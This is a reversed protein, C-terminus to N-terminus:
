ALDEFVEVVNMNPDYCYVSSRDEREWSGADEFYIDTTKLRSKIVSLDPVKLAFHGLINPDIYINNEVSVEGSPKTLFVEGTGNPFFAFEDDGIGFRGRGEDRFPYEAEKMGFIESYFEATERINPVALSVQRLSWPEQIGTGRPEPPTGDLSERIDPFTPSDDPNLDHRQNVEVCNMSPDYFYIQFYGKFAWGGADAFYHGRKLLAEKIPELDPVNLAIHGRLIPNIHFHNDVAIKGQPKNLHIQRLGDEFFGVHTNRTDMQGLGDTAFPFPKEVMEFISSYFEAASRVDYSPVNIHHLMWM